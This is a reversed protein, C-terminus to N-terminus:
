RMFQGLLKQAAAAMGQNGLMAHLADPRRQGVEAMARGFADPDHQRTYDALAAVDHEDMQNPDANRIGPVMGLLGGLGGGSGAGVGGARNGLAGGLLGGIAGTMAGGMGGGRGGLLHRILATAVMGMAAGKLMGLPNTGGVGPTVHDRYRPGDIDRAAQGFVSALQDQPVRNVVQGFDQADRSDHRSFDADGRLIRELPNQGGAQNGGGGLMGGIQDLLGM